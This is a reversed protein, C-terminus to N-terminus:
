LREEMLFVEEAFLEEIPQVKPTLSQEHSIQQAMQIAKLNAKIGYAFPDPGM